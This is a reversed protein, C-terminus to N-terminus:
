SSPFGQIRGVTRTCPFCITSHLGFTCCVGPVCILPRTSFCTQNHCLAQSLSVPVSRAGWDIWQVSANCSSDIWQVSANCSAETPRTPRLAEVLGLYLRSRPCSKAHNVPLHMPLVVTFQPSSHATLFPTLSSQTDDALCCLSDADRVCAHTTPRAVPLFITIPPHSRRRRHFSFM